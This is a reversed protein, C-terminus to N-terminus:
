VVQTVMEYIVNLIFVFDDCVNECIFRFYVLFFFGVVVFFFLVFCM